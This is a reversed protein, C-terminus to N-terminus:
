KFINLILLHFQMCGSVVTYLINNVANISSLDRPCKQFNRLLIRKHFDFAKDTLRLDRASITGEFIIINISTIDFIINNCLCNFVCIFSKQHLVFKRKNRQTHFHFSVIQIDIYMRCLTLHTKRPFLFDVISDVISYPCCQCPSFHNRLHRHVICREFLFFFFNRTCCNRFRKFLFAALSQILCLLREHRSFRRHRIARCFRSFRNFRSTLRVYDRM